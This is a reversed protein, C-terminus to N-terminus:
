LQYNNKTTFNTFQIKSFNLFLLNRKFWDSLIKLVININKNFDTPNSHSLLINTDGVFLIPVAKDNVFCCDWFQVRTYVM